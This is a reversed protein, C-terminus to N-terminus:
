GGLAPEREIQLPGTCSVDVMAQVLARMLDDAALLGVLGNQEDVVPLRRVGQGRMHWVAEHVTDRESAHTTLGALLDGALLAEPDAGRAMVHAVLDWDTVIGVPCPRQDSLPEVVVVAGVHRDRMMRAVEAVRTDRRCTVVTHSCIDGVRM